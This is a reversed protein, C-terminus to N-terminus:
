VPVEDTVDMDSVYPIFELLKVKRLRTGNVYATPYVEFEIEATTGNGIIGDTETDFKTGDSWLVKPPGGAEKFPAKHKRVFKVVFNDEDDLKGKKASGSDKLIKRQDKDLIVDVTYAGDCNEYAGQFGTLDRNEEFLRPWRLEGTVTFIKAKKGSM